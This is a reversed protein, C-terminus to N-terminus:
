LNLLIERMTIVIRMSIPAVDSLIKRRHFESEEIVPCIENNRPICYVATETSTSFFHPAQPFDVQANSRACAFILRLSGTVNNGYSYNKRSCQSNSWKIIMITIMIIITHIINKKDYYYQNEQIIESYFKQGMAISNQLATAPFFIAAIGILLFTSFIRIKKDSM